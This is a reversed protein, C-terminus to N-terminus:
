NLLQPLTQLTIMPFRTSTLQRLPHGAPPLENNWGHVIYM